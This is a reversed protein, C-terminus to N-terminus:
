NTSANLQDARRQASDYSSFKILQGNAGYLYRKSVPLTDDDRM